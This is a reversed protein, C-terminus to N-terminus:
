LNEKWHKVCFGCGTELDTIAAPRDCENANGDAYDYWLNCTGLAAHADLPIREAYIPEPMLPALAAFVLFPPRSTTHPAAM